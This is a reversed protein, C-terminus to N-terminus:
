SLNIKSIFILFNYLFFETVGGWQVGALMSSRPQKCTCVCADPARQRLHRLRQGPRQRPLHPLVLLPVPQPELHRAEPLVVDADVHVVAHEGDVALLAVHHLLVAAAVAVALAPRRRRVVGAQEERLVRHRLPDRRLHPVAHQVDGHGARRLPLPADGLDLHPLLLTSQAQSSPGRKYPGKDRGMKHIPRSETILYQIPRSGYHPM